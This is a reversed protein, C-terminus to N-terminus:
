SGAGGDYKVQEREFDSVDAADIAAEQTGDDERTRHYSLVDLSALDENTRRHESGSYPAGFHNPGSAPLGQEHLWDRSRANGAAAAIYHIFEITAFRIAPFRGRLVQLTRAFEHIQTNTMRSLAIRYLDRGTGTYGARFRELLYRWCEPFPPLSIGQLVSSVSRAEAFMRKLAEYYRLHLFKLWTFEHQHAPALRGEVCAVLRAEDPTSGHPHQVVLELYVGFTRLFAIEDPTLFEVAFPPIDYVSGILREPVQIM